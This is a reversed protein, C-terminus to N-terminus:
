SGGATAALTMMCALDDGVTLSEQLDEPDDPDDPDIAERPMAQTLCELPWQTPDTELIGDPGASLVILAMAGQGGPIEILQVTYPHNWADLPVEELWPESDTQQFDPTSGLGSAGMMAMSTAPRRADVAQYGRKQQSLCSLDMSGRQIPPWQGTEDHFDLIAYAISEARSWARISRDEDVGSRLPPFLVLAVIAVVALGMVMEFKTFGQKSM